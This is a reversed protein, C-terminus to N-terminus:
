AGPMLQEAILKRTADLIRLTRQRLPDDIPVVRRKKTAHSYLVGESVRASFMEELCIAQACLQIEAHGGAIRGVKYEVPVPGHRHLEVVDARGSLGYRDSWLPVARLVRVGRATSAPASDVRQHALNGRVTFLNEDFTQEVHILACQRACYSFHELASIPVTVPEEEARPEPNM